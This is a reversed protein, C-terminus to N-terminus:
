TFCICNPTTLCNSHTSNRAPAMRLCFCGTLSTRYRPYRVCFLAEHGSVTWWKDLGSPNALCRRLLKDGSRHFSAIFEGCYSDQWTRLYHDPRYLRALNRGWGRFWHIRTFCTFHQVPKHARLRPKLRVALMVLANLVATFPFTIFHIIIIFIMVPLVFPSPQYLRGGTVTSAESGSSTTQQSPLSSNM